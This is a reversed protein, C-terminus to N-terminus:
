GFTCFDRDAWSRPVLGSGHGWKLNTVGHRNLLPTYLIMGDDHFLM